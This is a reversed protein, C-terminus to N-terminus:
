LSGLTAFDAPTPGMGNPILPHLVMALVCPLSDATRPGFRANGRPVAACSHTRRTFRARMQACSALSCMRPRHILKALARSAAGQGLAAGAEPRLALRQRSRSLHPRRAGLFPADARCTGARSTQLLISRAMCAGTSAQDLSRPEQDARRRAQAATLRLVPAALRTRDQRYISGTMSVAGILDRRGRM